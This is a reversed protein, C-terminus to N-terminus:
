YQRCSGVVWLILSVSPPSNMGQERQQRSMEIVAWRLTVTDGCVANGLPGQFGSDEEPNRLLFFVFTAQLRNGASKRSFNIM